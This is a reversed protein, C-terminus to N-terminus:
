KPAATPPAPASAPPQYPKLDDLKPLLEQQKFAGVQYAWAGLKAQLADAAAKAAGDGAADLQLWLDAGAKSVTVTVTMGDTTTIKTVGVAAGPAPRPKVDTLTLNELVRALEDLKIQDLKPHDAPATMKVSAGDRAFEMPAGDGAVSIRAVKDHTVTVIDQDLWQLPDADVSLGGKALWARAEGPKRVYMTDGGGTAARQHGVILGAIVGGGGDLVRIQTSDADKGADEVGLRGYESPDSTRPELLTLESLATLVERMKAPRAPYDSKSPLVWADGKRAIVLPAGHHTVDLSAAGALKAPLDPFALTGQAVQDRQERSGTGFYLGLALVVCAIAVLIASNRATM